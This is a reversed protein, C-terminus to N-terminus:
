HAVATNQAQVQAQPPQPPQPQQPTQEIAVVTGNDLRYQGTAVVKQGDSLGKAIVSIGARRGAQQVDVRTVENDNGIVYVYDGNPGAMVASAPVTVVNHGIGVVLQVSVYEGPWLVGNGNTFTAQLTVTGTSTNV